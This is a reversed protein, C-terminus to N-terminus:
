RLWMVDLWRDKFPYLASSHYTWEFESFDHQPETGELPMMRFTVSTPTRRTVHMQYSPLSGKWKVGTFYLRSRKIYVPNTNNALYYGTRLALKVAKEPDLTCLDKGDYVMACSRYDGTLYNTRKLDFAFQSSAATQETDRHSAVM